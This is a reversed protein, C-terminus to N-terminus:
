FGVKRREPRFSAEHHLRAVLDQAGGSPVHRLQRKVAAFDGSTLNRCEALDGPAPLGFFREFARAARERGLPALDLKFMFRRLAAPDLRHAHNTAAIVPLPHCDLWTLMENM